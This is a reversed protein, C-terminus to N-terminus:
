SVTIAFEVEIVSAAEQKKAHDAAELAAMYKSDVIMLATKKKAFLERLQESTYTHM